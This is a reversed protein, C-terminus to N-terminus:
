FALRKLCTHSAFKDIRLNRYGEVSRIDLILGEGGESM